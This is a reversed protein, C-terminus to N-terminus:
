ELRELGLRSYRYRLDGYRLTLGDAQEALVVAEEEMTVPALHGPIVLEALRQGFPSTVTRDLRVRRDNLGLRTQM